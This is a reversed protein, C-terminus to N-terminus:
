NDKARAYFVAVIAGALNFILDLANNFYGGVGTAGFLAVTLFEIIENIAGIGTAALVVIVFFTKTKVEKKAISKVISYVFLAIVFYCFAHVLQDFKLINYPDPLIKILMTDYLKIGNIYFSGGAMHLFMWIAFGWKAVDTYSFIKDSKIIFFIVAGLVAIYTLFEYNKTLVYRLTFIILVVLSAWIPYNSRKGM